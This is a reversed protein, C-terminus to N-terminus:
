KTLLMKQVLRESGSTLVYIYTGSSFRAGDFTTKYNGVPLVGEVLTAIERGLLDYVKLTTFGQKAIAFEIQTTPNFPNPYNQSLRYAKPTADDMVAVGTLPHAPDEDAGMYPNTANRAQGDIDKTWDALPIGSLNKDGLSAGTLHLDTNSVFNVAVSKSSLDQFSATQWDALTACLTGQYNGAYASSGVKINNYDSAITALPSWLLLGYGKSVNQENVLINNKINTTFATPTWSTSDIGICARYGTLTDANVVITNYFINCTGGGWFGGFAIGYVKNQNTTGVQKSNTAIFNNVINVTSAYGYMIVGSAYRTTGSATTNLDLKLIKNGVIWTTDSQTGNDGTIYVGCYFGRDARANTIYITNNEYLNKSIYYTTIGRRRAYITCNKVTANTVASADNGWLAVGDSCCVTATGIELNDILLNDSTGAVPDGDQEIGEFNNASMYLNFNKLTVFDSNGGIMIPGDDTATASDIITLNKTNGGPTNSGDITVFSTNDIVIAGNAVNIPSNSSTKITLTVNRGTNPRITLTKTDSLDSRRLAVSDSVMNDADLLFVTNGSLGNTTVAFCAESLTAFGQPNAGQPIYYTGSLAQAFAAQAVLTVAVLLLLRKM